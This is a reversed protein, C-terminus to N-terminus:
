LLENPQEYDDNKEMFSGTNAMTYGALNTVGGGPPRCLVSFFSTRVWQVVTCCGCQRRYSSLRGGVGTHGSVGRSLKFTAPRAGLEPGIRAEQQNDGQLGIASGGVCVCVCVCACVVAVCGVFSTHLM